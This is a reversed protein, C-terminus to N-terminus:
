CSMATSAVHVSCFMKHHMFSYEKGGRGFNLVWQGLPHRNSSVDDARKPRPEAWVLFFFLTVGKDRQMHTPTDTKQPFWRKSKKPVGFSVGGHQPGRLFVLVWRRRPSGRALKASDERKEPSTQTAMSFGGIALPAGSWTAFKKEHTDRTLTERVVGFFAEVFLCGSRQFGSQAQSVLWSLQTELSFM